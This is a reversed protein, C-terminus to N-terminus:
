VISPFATVYAVVESFNGIAHADVSASVILIGRAAENKLKKCEGALSGLPGAERWVGLSYDMVSFILLIKVFVILVITVYILPLLSLLPLAALLISSASVITLLISLRFLEKKSSIM